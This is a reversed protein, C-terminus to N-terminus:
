QRPREQKPTMALRFGIPNYLIYKSLRENYGISSGISDSWSTAPNSASIASVRCWYPRDQYSGGRVNHGYVKFGEIQSKDVCFERVNGSMDYIGLENPMLMKVPHLVNSSNISSWCVETVINSGSFKFGKSKKGGRAAYEWEDDSPLRFWEGTVASLLSCSEVTGNYDATFVPMTDGLNHPFYEFLTKKFGLASWLSQTVQTEGIYFSDLSVQHVPREDFGSEVDYNRDSPNESQSGKWYTGGEVLIMNFSVGNITFTRVPPLGSDSVNRGGKSLVKGDPINGCYLCKGNRLILTNGCHKCIM